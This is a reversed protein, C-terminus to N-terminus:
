CTEATLALARPLTYEPGLEDAGRRGHFRMSWSDESWLLEKWDQPGTLAGCDHVRQNLRRHQVTDIGVDASAWEGPPAGSGREPDGDEVPVPQGGEEGV